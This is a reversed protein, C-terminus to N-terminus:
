AARKERAPKPPRGSAPAAQGAQAFSPFLRRSAELWQSYASEVLEVMAARSAQLDLPQGGPDDAPRHAVLCKLLNANTEMGTEFLMKWYCAAQEVNHRMWEAEAALLAPADGTSAASQQAATANAHADVAAQLQWERMKVAGETAAEVLQLTTDFQRKWADLARATLESFLVEPDSAHTSRDNM